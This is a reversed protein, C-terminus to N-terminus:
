GPALKGPPFMDVISNAPTGGNGTAYMADDAIQIYPDNNDVVDVGYSVKMVIAVAFRGRILGCIM